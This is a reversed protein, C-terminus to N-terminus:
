RASSSYHTFEKLLTCPPQEHGGLPTVFLRGFYGYVLMSIVGWYDEDCVDRSSLEFWEDHVRDVFSEFM